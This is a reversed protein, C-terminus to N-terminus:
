EAAKLHTTGDGSVSNPDDAFLPMQATNDSKQKRAAEDSTLQAPQGKLSAITNRLAGIEMLLADRDEREAMNRDIESQLSSIIQDKEDIEREFQRFFNKSIVAWIVSNIHDFHENIETPIPPPTRYDTQGHMENWMKMHALITSKSGYNGLGERVTTYTPKDGMAALQNCIQFVKAQTLKKLTM